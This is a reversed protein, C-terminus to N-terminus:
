LIFIYKCSVEVVSTCTGCVGGKFNSMGAASRDVCSSICRSLLCHSVVSARAFSDGVGFLLTDIMAFVCACVCVDTVRVCDSTRM